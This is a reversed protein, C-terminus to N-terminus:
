VSARSKRMRAMGLGFLGLGLLALVNPEPVRNPTGIQTLALEEGNSDLGQMQLHFNVTDGDAWKPDFLDFNPAYALFDPKGGGVENNVVMRCQYDNNPDNDQDNAPCKSKDYWAITLTKQALVYSTDNYESNFINDFAFVDSNAGNVKFFGNVYLDANNTFDFAFVPSSAGTGKLYDRLDKITVDTFAPWNGIYNGDSRVTQDDDPLFPHTQDGYNPSGTDGTGVTPEPFSGNQSQNSTFLKVIQGSGFSDLNVWDALEQYQYTKGLTHLINVGYSIFDDHQSAVYIKVTPDAAPSWCMLNALNPDIVGYGCNQVAPLSLASAGGSVGM